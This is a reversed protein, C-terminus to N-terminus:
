GNIMDLAEQMPKYYATIFIQFIMYIILAAVLLWVCWGVAVNLLAMRHEAMEHYQQSLKGMSEPVTGSNEATQLVALFEDPFEAYQSFTETLTTGEAVQEVISQELSAYAGNDTAKLSLPLAKFISMGTDMTVSLAFCFRSLALAEM